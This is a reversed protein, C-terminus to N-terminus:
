YKARRLRSFPLYLMLTVLTLAVGSGVFLSGISTVGALFGFLVAAITPALVLLSKMVTVARGLIEGPVQTQVLVQIPLNVVAGIVGITSVIVLAPPISTILGALAMLVGEVAVGLFLLKGVYGRFNVKGIAISGGIMGLAFAALTFGYILAGGHIWIKVYPAFLVTLGGSFFNVLFGFVILEIFVRSRRVYSLGERFEKWFGSKGKQPGGHAAGNASIQGYSKAVLTLMAAAIFFTLSDYTISAGAGVTALVIGGAAYSALQNASTSLMFLGNAAGLNERSVIRPIIATNAAAFYQTASYLVLVLLILLPFNLTGTVYLIAIVTTVLGQAINSAIMLNRRNLRDAYVGAIPSAIVGPLLVAAQTIGVLATSGTTVLVLWLLAVDFVADGSQSVVQSLWLSTFSRNRFLISYSPREATL